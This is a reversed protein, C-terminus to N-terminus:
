SGMFGNLHDFRRPAVVALVADAAEREVDLMQRAVLRAFTPGLTFASGGAAVFLGPAQPIAGVLPLQDSTIATVGTWSRILTLAAVKPVVAVAAALNGALSEALPEPRRTLDFGAPGTRMRSRWGGGILVNGAHAQKMSLRRGVHQVLHPLFAPVRETVNMQLGVPFIPLHVNFLSAVAPSWAGAAILVRAARVRAGGTLQLDFGDHRAAATEVRTAQLLTAGAATAARAFAPTLARPDAHGEDPLFGAATVSPALYPAVARAADGDLLRVSLGAAQERAVKRELLAVEAPTEAVMLGGHMHVHLDVGLAAELGRWDDIALRSLGTIAAAQEALADGNELFRREIQFHLSGANQGSAGANVHGAEVLLVSAGAM